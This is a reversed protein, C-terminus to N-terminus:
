KGRRKKVIDKILREICLIVFLSIIAIEGILIGRYNEQIQITGYKMIMSFHWLLFGGFCIGVLNGWIEKLKDWM